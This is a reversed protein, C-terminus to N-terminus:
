LTILKNEILYILMKARADAETKEKESRAVEEISSNEYRVFWGDGTKYCVLDKQGGMWVADPLMDGLEAVTYCPINDECWDPKNGWMEIADEKAGRFDRYFISPKQVRAADFLDRLKNSLEVSTVQEQLKM